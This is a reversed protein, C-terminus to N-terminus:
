PLFEGGSTAPPSSVPPASPAPSPATGTAASATPPSAPAAPAAGGATSEFGFEGQPDARKVKDRRSSPRRSRAGDDPEGARATTPAVTPRAPAEVAPPTATPTPAPARREARRQPKRPQERPEARQVLRTPDPLGGTAICYTGAGGGVCLSLLAALATGRGGGGSALQAGTMADPGTLRHLAGHLAGRLGAASPQAEGGAREGLWRLPVVGALFPLHLALRRLRSAHLDRVTARCAACHRLHPRLALVDDAAADGAALAAVVPGFRECEAGSEIGALADLFRKRGETIARNVKTYTWGQREGIERYSFGEAKLLLATREDPKLQALAERSRALHEEREIREQVAADPAPLREALDLADLPAGAARARRIDIAEHRVVVKLWALETAPDVTDLRRVYIELARQLADEADDASGSWRRAIWLLTGRHDRLMAAVREGDGRVAAKAVAM